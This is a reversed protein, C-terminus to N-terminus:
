EDVRKKDAEEDARKKAVTDAARAEADQRTKTLIEKRAAEDHERKEEVEECKAVMKAQQSAVVAAMSAVDAEVPGKALASQGDVVEGKENLIDVM